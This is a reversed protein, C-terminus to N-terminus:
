VALKYPVDAFESLSRMFADFQEFNDKPVSLQANIGENAVYVRGVVGISHWLDFLRKRMSAPDNIHVYKYFSLTQYMHSMSVGQFALIM